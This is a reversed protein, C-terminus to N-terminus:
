LLFLNHIPPFVCTTIFLYLFDYSFLLFFISFIITPPFRSAIYFKLIMWSDIIYKVEPFSIPM